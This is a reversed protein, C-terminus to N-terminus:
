ASSISCLHKLTLTLQRTYRRGTQCPSSALTLREQVQNLIATEEKQAVFTIAIGRM